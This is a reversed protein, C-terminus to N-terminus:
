GTKGARRAVRTFYVRRAATRVRLAAESRLRDVGSFPVLGSAVVDDRWGASSRRAAPRAPDSSWSDASVRFSALVTPDCVVSGHAPGQRLHGRRDHLALTAVWPMAARIAEGDFLM